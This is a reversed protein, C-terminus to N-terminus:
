RENSPQRVPTPVICVLDGVVPRAIAAFVYLGDFGLTVSDAVASYGIAHISLFYRGTRLGLFQFVGASDSRTTHNGPTVTV